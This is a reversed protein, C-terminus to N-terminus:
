HNWDEFDYICMLAMRDQEGLVVSQTYLETLLVDLEDDIGDLYMYPSMDDRRDLFLDLGADLDLGLAVGLMTLSVSLMSLPANWVGMMRPMYNYSMVNGSIPLHELGIAHGIEHLITLYTANVKAFVGRSEDHELVEHTNILHPGYRAEQATNIYIDAERLRNSSDWRWHAFGRSSNSNESTKFYIVSQGDDVLSSSQAGNNWWFGPELRFTKPRVNRIVNIVPRQAFGELATNWQDVAMEILPLYDEAGEGLHLHM